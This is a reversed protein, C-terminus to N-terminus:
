AVICFPRMGHAGTVRDQVQSIRRAPPLGRSTGVSKPGERSPHSALPPKSRRHPEVGVRWLTTLPRDKQRLTDSAALALRPAQVKPPEM